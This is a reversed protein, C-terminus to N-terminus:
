HHPAHRVADADAFFGGSAGINLIGAANMGDLAGSATTGGAYGSTRGVAGADAAHGGASGTRDALAAFGADTGGSAYGGQNIGAVILERGQTVAGGDAGSANGRVAAAAAGRSAAWGSGSGTSANYAYGTSASHVDGGLGAGAGGCDQAAGATMGLRASAAQVSQARSFAGGNAGLAFGGGVGSHVAVALKGGPQGFAPAHIFLGSLAVIAAAVFAAPKM